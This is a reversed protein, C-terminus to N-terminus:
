SGAASSTNGDQWRAAPQQPDFEFPGYIKLYELFADGVDRRADEAAQGLADDPSQDGYTMQSWYLEEDLVIESVYFIM